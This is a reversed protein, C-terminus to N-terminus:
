KIKVFKVFIITYGIAFITLPISLTILAITLFDERIDYGLRPLYLTLAIGTFVAIAYLLLVAQKETIKTM